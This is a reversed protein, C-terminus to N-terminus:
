LWRCIVFWFVVVKIITFVSVENLMRYNSVKIESSACTLTFHRARGTTASTGKETV